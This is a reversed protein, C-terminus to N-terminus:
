KLKGTWILWFQLENRIWANAVVGPLVIVGVTGSIRAPASTSGCGPMAVSRHESWSPLPMRSPASSTTWAM